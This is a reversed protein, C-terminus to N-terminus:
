TLPTQVVDKIQLFSVLSGLAKCTEGMIFHFLRVAQNVLNSNKRIMKTVAVFGKETYRGSKDNKKDAPTFPM